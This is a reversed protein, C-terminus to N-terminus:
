EGKTYAMRGTKHVIEAYVVEGDIEIIYGHGDYCEVAEVFKGFLDINRLKGLSKSAETITVIKGDDMKLELQGYEEPPSGPMVRVGTIKRGKLDELKVM